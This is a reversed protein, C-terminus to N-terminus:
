NRRYLMGPLQSVLGELELQLLVGSIEAVTMGTEQVIVDLPTPEIGLVQFVKALEPALKPTAKVPEPEFLSLQKGSDLEPIAGLMELLHGESLIVSAGRNLLGLCGVANPNDLSGPLAYVDRCFENAQYATILAGSKTPAEMVLVARSLGAIIRNRQPFHPRNPKTGAPYESLVLGRDLITEYLLKNRPPYIVDIGTGFVAVTRGGAELCGKHAETDIGAAMGSVITFGKKALAASIKRTWRKGYDTPERTGVIAVMPKMGQNEQQDVQGRYYLVPPPSPIELLLRPYDPDTPTWFYPNKICHQELFQQPNLHSRTKEVAQVLQRGFGEVQGLERAPSAWAEALTDFHQQLRRLLVPGVRPVQSWALWYARDDAM